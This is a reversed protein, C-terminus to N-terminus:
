EIKYPQTIEKPEKPTGKTGQNGYVPKLAPKQQCKYM